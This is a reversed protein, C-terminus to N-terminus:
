KGVFVNGHHSFPTDVYTATKLKGGFSRIIIPYCLTLIFGVAVFVIYGINWSEIM